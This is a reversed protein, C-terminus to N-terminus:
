IRTSGGPEQPELYATDDSLEADYEDDGYEEGYEDEGYEDEGYEDEGYEEGYDEGDYDEGYYDEGYYDETDRDGAISMLGLAALAASLVIGIWMSTLSGGNGAASMAVTPWHMPLAASAMRWLQTVEGSAATSWTWGVVGIQLLAFAAAIGTGVKPGAVRLFLWSLGASALTALALAFASIAVAAAPLSVGLIMILVLGTVTIFATGIGLISWRSRYVASAAIALAVGGLVAMASILMAALPALASRPANEDQAETNTVPTPAPIARQIASLRDATNVAMRDIQDAGDILQEIGEVAGTTGDSLETLGDSLEQSGSVAAQVGDYYSYGPTSLQNALERSGDRLENIQGSMEQPLEATEAQKRLDKLQDRIAVVEPENRDKLGELTIDINAIIQGRVAEFATMQGTVEGIADAIRTAGRGLEGTGSQLEQLGNALETSGADAASLGETLQGSGEDFQSTGEKLKATGQTLFSAQAAADGAARRIEVYPDPGAAVAPAGTTADGSQWTSSPALPLFAAVFFLLIAPVIPWKM